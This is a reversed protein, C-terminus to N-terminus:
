LQSKAYYYCCHEKPRTGFAFNKKCTKCKFLWFDALCFVDRYLYVRDVCKLCYLILDYLQYNFNYTILLIDYKCSHYCPCNLILDYPLSEATVIDGKALM